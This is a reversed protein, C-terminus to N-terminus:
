CANWRNPLKLIWKKGDEAAIFQGLQVRPVIAFYTKEDAAAAAVSSARRHSFTPRTQWRDWGPPSLPTPDTDEGHMRLLVLRDITNELSRIRTLRAADVHGSVAARNAISLSPSANVVTPTDKAATPRPRACYAPARDSLVDARPVRCVVRSLCRVNLRPVAVRDPCCARNEGLQKDWASAASLSTSRRGACWSSM